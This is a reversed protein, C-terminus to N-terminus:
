GAQNQFADQAPISLNEAPATIQQSSYSYVAGTQPNKYSRAEFKYNTLWQNFCSKYFALRVLREELNKELERTYFFYRGLKCRALNQTITKFQELQWKEQEIATRFQILPEIFDTPNQTNIYTKQIEQILEIGTKKQSVEILSALPTENRWLSWCRKQTLSSSLEYLKYTIGAYLAIFLSATTTYKHNIFFSTLTAGKETAEKTLEKVLAQSTSLYSDNQVVINNYIYPANHTVHPSCATLCCFFFAPLMLFYYLLFFM